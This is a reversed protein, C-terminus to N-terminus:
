ATGLGRGLIRVQVRAPSPRPRGNASLSAVACPGPATKAWGMKFSDTSGCGYGSTRKVASARTAAYPPADVRM